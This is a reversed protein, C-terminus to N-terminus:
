KFLEMDEETFNEIMDPEQRARQREEQIHEQNALQSMRLEKRTLTIGPIYMNEV